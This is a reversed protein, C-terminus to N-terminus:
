PADIKPFEVRRILPEPKQKEASRDRALEKAAARAAALESSVGPGKAPPRSQQLASQVKAQAEARTLPAAPTAPAPTQAAEEKQVPAENLNFIQPILSSLQELPPLLPNKSEALNAQECAKRFEEGLKQLSGTEVKPPEFASTLDRVSSERALALDLNQMESQLRSLNDVLKQHNVLEQEAAASDSGTEVFDIDQRAWTPLQDEQFMLQDRNVKTIFELEGKPLDVKAAIEEIGMGQHAMRAAQVYKITNQREIIEQHPIKDQFIRAVDLSRDMAVRIEHVHQEALQVKAQVERCKQDLIGTLQNVQIETRDSLDELVSIKSQLLQLGRSLRPDDKPARNMRMIIIFFGLAAFINFVVQILTWTSL